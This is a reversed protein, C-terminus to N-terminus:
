ERPPQGLGAERWCSAGDRALGFDAKGLLTRGVQKLGRTRPLSSLSVRVPFDSRVLLPTPLLVAAYSNKFTLTSRAFVSIDAVPCPLLSSGHERVM